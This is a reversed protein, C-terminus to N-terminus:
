YFIFIHYAYKKHIYFHLVDASMSITARSPDHSAGAGIEGCQHAPWRRRNLGAGAGCLTPRRGGGSGDVDKEGIKKKKEKKKKSDNNYSNNNNNNNKGKREM